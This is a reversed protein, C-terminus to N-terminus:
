FNKRSFEETIGVAKSIENGLAIPLGPKDQFMRQLEAPTPQLALSMVLNTNAKLSNGGSAERAYRSIHPNQPWGFEYEKGDDDSVIQITRKAPNGTKETEQNSTSM